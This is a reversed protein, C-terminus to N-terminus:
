LSNDLLCQTHVRGHSSDQGTNHRSAAHFQRAMVKRFPYTVLRTSTGGVLWVYLCLNAHVCPDQVVVLVNVAWIGFDKPWLAPDSILLGADHVRHHKRYPLKGRPGTLPALIEELKSSTRSGTNASVDAQQFQGFHHWLNDALEIEFKLMWPLREVGRARPKYIRM